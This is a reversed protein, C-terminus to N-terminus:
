RHVRLVRSAATHYAASCLAGMQQTTACVALALKAFARVSLPGRTEHQAMCRRLSVGRGALTSGAPGSGRPGNAYTAAAGGHVAPAGGCMLGTGGRFYFSAFSFVGGRLRRTESEWNM